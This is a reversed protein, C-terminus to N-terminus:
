GVQAVRFHCRHYMRYVYPTTGLDECRLSDFLVVDNMALVVDSANKISLWPMPQLAMSQDSDADDDPVVKSVYPKKTVLKLWKKNGYLSRTKKQIQALEKRQLDANAAATFGTALWRTNLRTVMLDPTPSTPAGVSVNNQVMVQWQPILITEIMDVKYNVFLPDFETVFNVLQEMKFNNFSLYSMNWDSAGAAPILTVGNGTIGVNICEPVTERVFRYQNPAGRYGLSLARRPRASGKRYSRRKRFFRQITKAARYRSRARKTRRYTGGPGSLPRKPM